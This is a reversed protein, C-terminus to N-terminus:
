LAQGLRTSHGLFTGEYYPYHITCRGVYCPCWTVFSAGVRGHHCGGGGKVRSEGVSTRKMLPELLASYEDVQKSDGNAIGDIIMYVFFMPWEAEINDFMQLRSYVVFYGVCNHMM